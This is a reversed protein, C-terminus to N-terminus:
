GEPKIVLCAVKQAKLDACLRRAVERNDLPGGRVRFFVKGSLDAREIFLSLGGLLEPFQKQRRGWESQAAEQSKLAAIQVRWYGAGTDGVAGGDTAGATTDSTSNLSLAAVAKSVVSQAGTKSATTGQAQDETESKTPKDASDENTKASVAASGTTEDAAALPPQEVPLALGDEPLAPDPPDETISPIARSSEEGLVTIGAKPAPQMPDEPPPLIREVRAEGGDGDGEGSLREYVRKDKNPIDLGGPEGPETKAPGEATLLPAADESGSLVGQSYAFWVVGGLILLVGLALAIALVTPTSSRSSPLGSRGRGQDAFERELEELESAM